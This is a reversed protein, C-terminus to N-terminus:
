AGQDPRGVVAVPVGRARSAAALEELIAEGSPDVHAVESLDVVIEAGAALGACHADWFHRLCDCSAGELAGRVFVRTRSGDTERALKLAM